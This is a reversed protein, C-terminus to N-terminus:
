GLGNQRSEVYYLHHLISCHLVYVVLQASEHYVRMHLVMGIHLRVTARRSGKGGLDVLFLAHTGLEEFLVDLVSPLSAEFGYNAVFACLRDLVEVQLQSLTRLLVPPNLHRRPLQLRHDPYALTNPTTNLARWSADSVISM